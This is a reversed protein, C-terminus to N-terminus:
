TIVGLEEGERGGPVWWETKERESNTPILIITCYEDKPSQSTEHPMTDRLNMWTTTHKLFKGEQKLSFGNYM